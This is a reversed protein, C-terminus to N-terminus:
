KSASALPQKRQQQLVLLGILCVGWGGAQGQAGPSRTAETPGPPGPQGRHPHRTPLFESVSWQLHGRARKWIRHQGWGRPGTGRHAHARACEHAHTAPLHVGRYVWVQTCPSQPETPVRFSPRRYHNGWPPEAKIREESKFLRDFTQWKFHTSPWCSCALVPSRENGLKPPLNISTGPVIREVKGYKWINGSRESSFTPLFNTLRVM